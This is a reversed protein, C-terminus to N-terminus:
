QIGNKVKRNFKDWSWIHLRELNRRQWAVYPLKFPALDMFDRIGRAGAGVGVFWCNAGKGKECYVLEESGRDGIIRVPQAMLFVDESNWVHGHRMYHLLLKAFSIKGKSEQVWKRAKQWPKM